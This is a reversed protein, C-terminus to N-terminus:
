AFSEAFFDAMRRYLTAQNQPRYIGHGEDDFVLLDYPVDHLALRKVVERM